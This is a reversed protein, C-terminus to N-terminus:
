GCLTDLRNHRSVRQILPARVRCGSKRLIHDFHDNISMERRRLGRTSEFQETVEPAVLALSSFISPNRL